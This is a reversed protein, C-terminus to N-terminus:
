ANNKDSEFFREEEDNGFFSQSFKDVVVKM